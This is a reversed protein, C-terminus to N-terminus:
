CKRRDHCVYTLPQRKNAEFTPTGPLKSQADQGMINVNKELISQSRLEDYLDLIDHVDMSTIIACHASDKQCISQHARHKHSSLAFAPSQKM